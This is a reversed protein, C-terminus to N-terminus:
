TANDSVSQSAEPEPRSTFPMLSFSDSDKKKTLDMLKETSDTKVKAGINEKIEYDQNHCEGNRKEQELPWQHNSSMLNSLITQECKCDSYPNFILNGCKCKWKIPKYDSNVAGVHHVGEIVNQHGQGFPPARFLSVSRRRNAIVKPIGITQVTPPLLPKANTFSCSTIFM